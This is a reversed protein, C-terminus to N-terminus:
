TGRTESRNPFESYTVDMLCLGSAPLSWVAAGPEGEKALAHFEDVSMSGAGVRALAASTRRIQRPLFGSAELDIFYQPSEGNEGEAGPDATSNNDRINQTM